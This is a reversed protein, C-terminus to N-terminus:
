KYHKKIIKGDKKIIRVKHVVIKKVSEPKSEMLSKTAYNLM